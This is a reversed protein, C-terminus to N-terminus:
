CGWRLNSAGLKPLAYGDMLTQNLYNFHNRSLLAATPRATPPQNQQANDSPVRFLGAATEPFDRKKEILVAIASPRFAWFATMGHSDVCTQVRGSPHTCICYTWAVERM